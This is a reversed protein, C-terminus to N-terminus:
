GHNSKWSGPASRAHPEGACPEGIVSLSRGTVLWGGGLVGAPGERVTNAPPERAPWVTQGIHAPLRPTEGRGKRRLRVPEGCLDRARYCSQRRRGARETRSM